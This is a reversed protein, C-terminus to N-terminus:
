MFFGSFSNITPIKGKVAHTKRTITPVVDSYHTYHTKTTNQIPFYLTKDYIFMIYCVLIKV